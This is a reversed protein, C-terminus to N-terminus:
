ERNALLVFVLHFAHHAATRLAQISYMASGDGSICLVTRGPHAVQAGLAGALGQGIGGGRGSLYDGPEKLTFSRALDLNATISEEVVIAGEPLGRAIEAMARAMSMPEREASKAIRAAQAARDADKEARLALNRAQAQIEQEHSLGARVATLTADLSQGLDGVMGLALPFNFALQRHNAEIQAVM